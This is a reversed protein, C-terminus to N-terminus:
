LIGYRACSASAQVAAAALAEVCLDTWTRTDHGQDVTAVFAGHFVDGAGNTDVADVVPVAISGGTEGCHWDVPNSGNTVAIFVDEFERVWSLMKAPDSEFESSVIAVDAHAMLDNIWPKKSGIDLVVRAGSTRAKRAIALAATPYHCDLLLIDGGGPTENLTLEGLALSEEPANSVLTREGSQQVIVVSLPVDAFSEPAFDLTKVGAVHLSDLAFASLPGAGLATLLTATSGMGAAVRAANAAPGGVTLDLSRAQNKRGLEISDLGFYLADVVTLGLFYTAM